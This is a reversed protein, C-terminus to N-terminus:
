IGTADDKIRKITNKQFIPHKQSECTHLITSCEFHIPKKSLISNASVIQGDTACPVWMFFVPVWRYCENIIILVVTHKTEVNRSVIWWKPCGLGPFRHVRFACHKDHSFSRIQADLPLHSHRNPFHFPFCHAKTNFSSLVCTAVYLWPVEPLISIKLQLM